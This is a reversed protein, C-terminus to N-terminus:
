RDGAAETVGTLEHVKLRVLAFVMESPAEFVHYFPIQFERDADSASQGRQRHRALDEVTNRHELGGRAVVSKWGDATEAAVVFTAEDTAEIYERKRSGPAYGLRFYIDTEEPAYTYGVPIAYSDNGKAFSLTGMTQSELFADIEAQDLATAPSKPM